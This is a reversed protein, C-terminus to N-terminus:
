SRRRRDLADILLDLGYRFRAERDVYLLDNSAVLNPFEDKPLGAFAERWPDTSEHLAAADTVTLSILYDQIVEFARAAEARDLGGSRLLALVQETAAAEGQLPGSATAVLVVVGPHELYRRRVHLVLNRVDDPWTGTLELGDLAGALLWEAAARLLEDKDRFHRYFATADVGLEAGLRRMTVAAAGEADAIRITTAVLADRSLPAAREPRASPIATV